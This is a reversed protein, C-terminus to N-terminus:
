IDEEVYCYGGSGFKVEAAIDVLRAINNLNYM